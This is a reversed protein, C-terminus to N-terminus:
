YRDVTRGAHYLCSHGKSCFTRQKMLSEIQNLYIAGNLAFAPPMDQRRDITTPVPIFDELTGDKTITKVLYPHPNAECVSVVANADRLNAIERSNIIDMSTRLPSTPQLLLCYGTHSCGEHEEIWHLTHEAVSFQSSLDSALGAPRLFPVEAGWEQAVKAIVEDDTSVIIRKLVNSELAAQITWAILPKGAINKINKGPIGKSGGRAPILGIIDMM